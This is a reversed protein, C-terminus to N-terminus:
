WYSDEDKTTAPVTVEETRPDLADLAGNDLGPYTRGALHWQLEAIRGKLLDIEFNRDLVREREIDLSNLASDREDRVHDITADMGENDLHLSVIMAERDIIIKSDEKIRHSLENRIQMLAIVALLLALATLSSAITSIVM